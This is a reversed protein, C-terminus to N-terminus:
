SPKLAGKKQNSFGAEMFSFPPSAVVICALLHQDLKEGVPISHAGSNQHERSSVFSPFKLLKSYRSSGLNSRELRISVPPETSPQRARVPRQLILLLSSVNHAKLYRIQAINIILLGLFEILHNDAFTAQDLCTFFVQANTPLLAGPLFALQPKQNVDLRVWAKKWGYDSFSV